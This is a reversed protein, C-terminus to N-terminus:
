DGSWNLLMAVNAPIWAELRGEVERLQIPERTATWLKPALKEKGTPVLALRVPGLEHGDIKFNLTYRDLRHIARIFSDCFLMFPADEIQHFARTAYILAAGAGYIEQGVQGAPQGDPYLDEMPFNLKRDIHGNRNETAIADPPLTDPYYYWARDLAHRCFEGALLKAGPILDPGGYDLLREFAAYSDFCEYAAMYPADQLCTVGLFNTWHRALGIESKWMQANHFFSALYVYCQTLYDKNNTIRWLRICAAAGWATLNAQYNLDFRMGKAAGIAREAEHLFECDRTLEFAQLMVWAYIGGVDTQGRQDAEAV